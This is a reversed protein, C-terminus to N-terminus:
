FRMKISAQLTIPRVTQLDVFVEQSNNCLFCPKQYNSVTNKEQSFKRIFYNGFQEYKYLVTELFCIYLNIQFQAELTDVGSNPFATYSFSIFKLNPSYHM